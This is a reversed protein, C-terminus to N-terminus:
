TLEHLGFWLLINVLGSLKLGRPGIRIFTKM